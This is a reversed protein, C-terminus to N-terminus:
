AGCFREAHHPVTPTIWRPGLCKCNPGNTGVEIKCVDVQGASNLNARPMLNFDRNAVGQYAVISSNIDAATLTIDGNTSIKMQRPKAAGMISEINETTM